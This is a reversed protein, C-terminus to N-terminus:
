VVTLSDLINMLLVLVFFSSSLPGNKVLVSNFQVVIVVVLTAQLVSNDFAHTQVVNVLLLMNCVDGFAGPVRKVLGFTHVEADRGVRLLLLLPEDGLHSHVLFTVSNTKFVM